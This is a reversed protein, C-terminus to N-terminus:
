RPSLAACKLSALECPVPRWFRCPPPERPAPTSFVACTRGCCKGSNQPGFCRSGWSAVPTDANRALKRDLTLFTDCELLVADRILAADKRSLYGFRSPHLLRVCEQRM